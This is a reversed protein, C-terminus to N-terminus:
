VIRELTEKLQQIEKMTNFASVSVRVLNEAPKYTTRIGKKGLKGCLSESDEARIPISGPATSSLVSIGKVKSLESRAIVGLYQTRTYVNQWGLQKYEALCAGLHAVKDMNGIDRSGINREVYEDDIWAGEVPPCVANYLEGLNRKSYVIASGAYESIAGRLWKHGSGVVFDAGIDNVDVPIHGFAQAADIIFPVKHKGAVYAIEKVQVVKCTAHTVYSAAVAKTQPHLKKKMEKGIGSVGFATVKKANTMLVRSIDSIEDATTLIERKDSRGIHKLINSMANVTNIDFYIHDPSTNLLEAALRRTRESEEKLAEAAEGRKGQCLLQIGATQLEMPVGFSASGFDVYKRHAFLRKDQDEWFQEDKYNDM